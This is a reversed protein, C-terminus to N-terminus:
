RPEASFAAGFAALGGDLHRRVSRVSICLAAAIEAETLNAVYHLVIADLYRDPVTGLAAIAAPMADARADTGNGASKRRSRTVADAARHSRARIVVRRRLYLLKRDPSLSRCIRYTDAFASQVIQEAAAADVSLLAAVRVLERHHSGYLDSLSAVRASPALRTQAACRRAPAFTARSIV